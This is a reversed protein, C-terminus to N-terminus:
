IQIIVEFLASVHFIFLQREYKGRESSSLIRKNDKCIRGHGDFTTSSKYISGDELTSIFVIRNAETKEIDM